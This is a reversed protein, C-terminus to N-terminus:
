RCIGTGGRSSPVTPRSRARRSSVVRAPTFFRRYRTTETMWRSHAWPTPRTPNSMKGSPQPYPFPVGFPGKLLHLLLLHETSFPLAALLMAIMPVALATGEAAQFSTRCAAPVAAVRHRVARIRPRTRSDPLRIRSSRRARPPLPKPPPRPPQRRNRPRRNPRRRLKRM